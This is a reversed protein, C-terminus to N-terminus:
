NIVALKGVEHQDGDDTVTFVIYVGTPVRRNRDDFLNWTATSGNARTEWVLKGSVDTIKVVADTPTGTIGVMGTFTPTVPNPFIRINEKAQRPATAGTRYSALGQATAMFVEGSRQNIEVDLVTDSPLMANTATFQGLAIDATSNFLWVGRRTGFWKRNGGDVAIATVADERLVFRGDVIPKIADAPSQLMAGADPIYAVGATTGIWMAGKRDLCLSHVAIDPLAGQGVAQTLLTSRGSERNLIVLGGGREPDIAIWINGADDTVMTKGYRATPIPVQMSSWNGQKDVHHLVENSGYNLMMVGDSVSSLTTVWVAGEPSTATQLTSNSGDYRVAASNKEQIVAGDGFSAAVLTQTAEDWLVDTLNRAPLTRLTWRGTEFVDVTNGTQEEPVNRGNVGGAGFIKGESYHLRTIVDNAPCSPLWSTFKGDMSSFLGGYQDGVWVTGSADVSAVKPASFLPSVVREVIGTDNLKYIGSKGTVVLDRSAQLSFYQDPPFETVQVWRGALKRFVGAQDIAAYVTDHWVALGSVRSGFPWHLYRIWKNFDQLNDSLRGTMVGQPTALFISDGKIASADVALSQGSIGLDRWTERVRNRTLDFVLVGYDTALYAAKGATMVHNIRRSRNLTANLAPNYNGITQDDSWVDFYGERYAVVLKRTEPDFRIDTVTGGSMGNAKSYTNVEAHVRDIIQLGHPAAAIVRASGDFTIHHITNYSVHLRFTGVPINEQACLTLATWNFWLLAMVRSLTGM